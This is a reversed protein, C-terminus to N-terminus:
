LSVKKMVIFCLRKMSNEPNDVIIGGAFGAKKFIKAINELDEENKIYLQIVIKGEEKLIYNIGEAVKKMEWRETIWQLASASVIADFEGKNFLKDLERIDGKVFKIKNKKAKELMDDIIDIGTVNYGEKKYVGTTFGPGCGLDLIKKENTLFEIIRYAIKEQTKKIGGSRAYKEVEDKSYYELPSKYMDEPAENSTKWTKSKKIIM